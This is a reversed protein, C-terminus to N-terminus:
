LLRPRPLHGWCASNVGFASWPRPPAEQHLFPLTRLSVPRPRRLPLQAQPLPTRLSGRGGACAWLTLSGEAQPPRHPRPWAAREGPLPECPGALASLGCAAGPAGPASHPSGAGCKEWGQGLNVERGSLRRKQQTTWAVHASVSIAPLTGLRHLLQFSVKGRFVRHPLSAEGM